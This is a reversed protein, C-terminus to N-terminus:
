RTCAPTATTPIEALLPVGTIERLREVSHIRTDRANRLFAAALGVLLGLATGLAINFPINPSIPQNVATAPRIIQM